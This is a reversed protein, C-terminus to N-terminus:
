SRLAETEEVIFYFPSLLSIVFTFYKDIKPVYYVKLLHKINKFVNIIFHTTIMVRTLLLFFRCRDGLGM